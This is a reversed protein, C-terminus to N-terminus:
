QTDNVKNKNTNISLSNWVVKLLINIDNLVGWVYDNLIKKYYLM